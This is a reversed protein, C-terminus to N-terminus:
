GLHRHFVVLLWSGAYQALRHIVGDADPLEFDIAPSGVKSVMHTVVVVSKVACM